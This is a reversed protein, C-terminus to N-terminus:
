MMLTASSHTVGCRYSPAITYAHILWIDCVHSHRTVCVCPWTHTYCSVTMHTIYSENMRIGHSRWICTANSMEWRREHHLTHGSQSRTDTTVSKAIHTHLMVWEYAHSTRVRSIVSECTHYSDKKHTHCSEYTHYSGIMHTVHSMQTPSIVWGYTHCPEFLELSSIVVSYLDHWWM